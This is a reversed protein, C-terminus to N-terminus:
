PGIRALYLRTTIVTDGLVDYFVGRVRYSVLEAAGPSSRNSAPLDATDDLLAPGSPTFYGAVKLLYAPKLWTATEVKDFHSATDAFPAMSLKGKIFLSLGARHYGYSSGTLSYSKAVAAAIALGRATSVGVTVSM